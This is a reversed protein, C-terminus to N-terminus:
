GCMAPIGAGSLARPSVAAVAFAPDIVSIATECGLKQRIALAAQGAQAVSTYVASTEFWGDNRLVSVIFLPEGSPAVIPQPLFSRPKQRESFAVASSLGATGASLWSWAIDAALGPALRAAILLAGGFAIMSSGCRSERKTTTKMM